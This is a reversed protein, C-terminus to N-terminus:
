KRNNRFLRGTYPHPSEQTVPQPVGKFRETDTAVDELETVCLELLMDGIGGNVRGLASLVLSLSERSHQSCRGSPQCFIQSPSKNSVLKLGFECSSFVDRHNYYMYMSHSKTTKRIKGNRIKDKDKFSFSNISIICCFLFIANIKILTTKTM